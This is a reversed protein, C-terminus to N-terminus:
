LPESCLATLITPISLFETSKDVYYAAGLSMCLDRYFAGSQNSLMVVVVDPHHLRIYRLLEIGNRDPLNIDLLVIDPPMPDALHQMAETFSGAGGISKLGAVGELLNRLRGLILPSDDVILLHKGAM